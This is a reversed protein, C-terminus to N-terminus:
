THWSGVGVAGHPKSEETTAATKQSVDLKVPLVVDGKNQSLMAQAYYSPSGFTRLADYGILNYEWQWGRPYGKSPDALNVNAFLPAYCQMEVADSNKEMGMVFAADALASNHNTLPRAEQAAWEGVFTKIGDIFRGNWGGGSFHLVK